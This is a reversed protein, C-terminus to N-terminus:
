AGADGLEMLGDDGLNALAALVIDEDLGTVAAVVKVLENEDVGPMQERAAKLMGSPEDEVLRHSQYLAVALLVREQESPDFNSEHSPVPM